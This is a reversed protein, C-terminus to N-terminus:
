TKENTKIKIELKTNMLKHWHYKFIIKYFLRKFFSMEKIEKEISKKLDDIANSLKKQSQFMNFGLSNIKSEVFDLYFDNNPTLIDITYIDYEEHDDGYYFDFEVFLSTECNPCITKSNYRPAEIEIESDCFPCFKDIGTM